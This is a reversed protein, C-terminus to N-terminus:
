GSHVASSKVLSCQSLSLEFTFVVFLTCRESSLSLNKKARNSTKVYKLCAPTKWVLVITLKPIPNWILLRQSTWANFKVLLHANARRSRLTRPIYLNWSAVLHHSLSFIDHWAIRLFRYSGFISTIKVMLKLIVASISIVFFIHQTRSQLRPHTDANQLTQLAYNHEEMWEQWPIHTQMTKKSTISWNISGSLRDDQRRFTWGFPM